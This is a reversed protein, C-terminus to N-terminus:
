IGFTNMMRVDYFNWNPYVGPLVSNVSYLFGALSNQNYVDYYAYYGYGYVEDFEDSSGAMFAFENYADAIRQKPSKVESNMAKAEVIGIGSHSDFTDTLWESYIFPKLMRKMGVWVYQAGNIFYTGGQKLIMWKNDEVKTWDTGEVPVSTNADVLSQWISVDYLVEDGINYTIPSPEWIPPLSNLGIIFDQYLQIGLLKSLVRREKEEIYLPFTNVVQQLNPISYPPIDFDDSTVFM